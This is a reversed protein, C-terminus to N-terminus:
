IGLRKFGFVQRISKAIDEDSMGNSKLQMCLVLARLMCFASAVEHAVEYKNGHDIDNRNDACTKAIKKYDTDPAFKSKVWELMSSYKDFCFYLIDELSKDNIRKLLYKYIEKEKGSSNLILSNINEKANQEAAIRKENLFIEEKKHLLKFTNEFASSLLSIDNVSIWLRKDITEPIHIMYLQNSYIKKYIEGVIDYCCNWPISDRWISDYEEPIPNYEKHHNCIIEGKKYPFYILIKDPCIDTRYFLFKILKELSHYNKIIEKCDIEKKILLSIGLSLNYGNKHNLSWTPSLEFDVNDITFISKNNISATNVDFLSSINNEGRQFDIKPKVNLFRSFEKSLYAIKVGSLEPNSDPKLLIYDHVPIDIICDEFGHSHYGYNSPDILFIIKEGTDFVVGNLVDNALPKRENTLAKAGDALKTYLIEDSQERSTYLEITRGDFLYLTEQGNYNLNGVYTKM